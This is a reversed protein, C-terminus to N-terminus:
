HFIIIDSVADFQLGTRHKKKAFNNVDSHEYKVWGDHALQMPARATCPFLKLRNKSWPM